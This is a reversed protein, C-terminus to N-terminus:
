RITAGRTEVRGTGARHVAAQKTEARTELEAGKKKMKVAEFGSRESCSRGQLGEEDLYDGKSLETIIEVSINILKKLDLKTHYYYRFIM